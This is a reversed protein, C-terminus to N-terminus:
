PADTQPCADIFKEVQDRSQGGFIKAKGAMRTRIAADADLHGEQRYHSVAAAEYDKATDSIMAKMSAPRGSDSIAANVQYAAACDAFAQWKAGSQPAGTACAGLASALIIASIARAGM